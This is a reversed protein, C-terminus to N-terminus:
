GQIHFSIIIHRMGLLANQNKENLKTHKIKNKMREKHIKRQEASSWWDPREYECKVSLHM